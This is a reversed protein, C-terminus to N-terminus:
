KLVDNYAKIAANVGATAARSSITAGSLADIDTNLQLESAASKGVFQSGFDAETIRAGLGPTESQSSVKMGAITDDSNIGTLMVVDGGYGSTTTKVVYGIISGGKLAEYAEEVGDVDSIAPNEVVKFEDADTLLEKMYVLNAEMAKEQIVVKTVDNVVSLLGASVATIVLLILGLRVMQKM